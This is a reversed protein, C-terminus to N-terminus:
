ILKTPAKIAVGERRVTDPAKQLLKAPNSFVTIKLNITNEKKDKTTRKGKHHKWTM